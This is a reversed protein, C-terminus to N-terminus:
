ENEKEQQQEKALECVAHVIAARTAQDRYDEHAFAELVRIYRLNTYYHMATVAYKHPVIKIQQSAILPGCLEWSALYDPLCHWLDGEELEADPHTWQTGSCFSWGEMEAVIGNREDDTLEAYGLKGSLYLQPNTM